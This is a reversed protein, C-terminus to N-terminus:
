FAFSKKLIGLYIFGRVSIFPNEFDALNYVHYPFIPWSDNNSITPQMVENRSPKGWKSDAFKLVASLNLYRNKVAIFISVMACKTFFCFLKIKLESTIFVHGIHKLEVILYPIITSACWYKIQVLIRGTCHEYVTINDTKNPLEGQVNIRNHM